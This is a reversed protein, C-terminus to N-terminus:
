LALHDNLAVPPLGLSLAVSLSVTGAKQSLPSFTLYSSVLQPPSAELKSFGAKLLTSYTGGQSPGRRNGSRKPTGPPPVPLSRLLGTAIGPMLHIVM